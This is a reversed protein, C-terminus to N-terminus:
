SGKGGRDMLNFTELQKQQTDQRLLVPLVEQAFQALSLGAPLAAGSHM